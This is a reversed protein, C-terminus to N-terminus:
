LRSPRNQATTLQNDIWNGIVETVQDRYVPDQHMFHNGGRIIHSTLNAGPFLKAKSKETFLPPPFAPDDSAGLYLCPIEAPYSAPLSAAQEDSHDIDRTKYWSLPGLLGGKEFESLFYRIEPDKVEIKELQPAAERVQKRLVNEGVFSHDKLRAFREQILNELGRDTHLYLLLIITRRYRHIEESFEPSM